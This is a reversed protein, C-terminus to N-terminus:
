IMPGFPFSAGGCLFLSASPLADMDVIPLTWNLAGNCNPRLNPTDNAFEFLRRMADPTTTINYRGCM